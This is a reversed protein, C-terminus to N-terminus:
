GGLVVGVRGPLLRFVRYLSGTFGDNGESTSSGNTGSETKASHVHYHGHSAAACLIPDASSLDQLWLMFPAQRMEVSELLVWYLSIFVPIQVLVPLCGGLPNIKETKYMDMMAQNLKKKDDGYREKMAKMRPAMKRMNAMSKYSTESLKYFAIKILLTVFIIAWGWNGLVSHLKELLWFVPKALVTLMGFDVTLELGPATKEMVRQLKPGVFLRSSISSQSGAAVQLPSGIYGIVYREGSLARSYYRETSSEPPLWAAVFYHQIMAAWGGKIERNLDEDEMDGFDIKEYKEEPSYLVGGTYTYLFRSEQEMPTRQLQYYPRGAWDNASQNSVEYELEVEYSDRHFRYRKVVQVGNGDTWVFPVELVDEGPALEYRTQETQFIAHHTPEPGDAVRFGSQTMFIPYGDDNMLRFPESGEESTKPYDLLDVMRLDGGRTDIVIRLVDTVIEVRQASAIKEVQGPVDPLVAAQMTPSAAQPLDESLDITNAPLGDDTQAQSVPPPKPGYDEMWSQWLLLILFSLAIALLARPNDM